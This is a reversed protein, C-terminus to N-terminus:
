PNKKLLIITGEPKQYVDVRISPTEGREMEGPYPQRDLREKYSGLYGRWIWFFKEGYRAAAEVLERANFSPDVGLREAMPKFRDRLAEIANGDMSCPYWVHSGYSYRSSNTWKGTSEDLDLIHFETDGEVPLSYEVRKVDEVEIVDKVESELNVNGKNIIAVRRFPARYVIETEESGTYGLGSLRGSTHTEQYFLHVALRDNSLLWLKFGCDVSNYPDYAPVHGNVKEWSLAHKGLLVGENEYIPGCSYDVNSGGFYTETIVVESAIEIKEKGSSGVERLLAPLAELNYPLPYTKGIRIMLITNIIDELLAKNLLERSSGNLRENM